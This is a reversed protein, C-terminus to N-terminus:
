VAKERASPTAEKQGKGARHKCEQYDFESLCRSRLEYLTPAYPVEERDPCECLYLGGRYPSAPEFVLNPCPM